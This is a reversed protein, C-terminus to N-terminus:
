SISKIEKKLHNRKRTQRNCPKEITTKERLLFVLDNLDQFMNITKKFTIEDIENNEKLFSESFTNETEKLFCQVDSPELDINFKVLSFLYYERKNELMSNRKVISIIDEKTIANPTQLFYKEEKIKDIENSRNIYILNLNIFYVDDTYFDNLDEYNKIWSDNLESEM